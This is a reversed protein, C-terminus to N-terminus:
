RSVIEMNWCHSFDSQTNKRTQYMYIDHPCQRIAIHDGSFEHLPRYTLVGRVVYAPSRLVTAPIQAIQTPQTYRFANM